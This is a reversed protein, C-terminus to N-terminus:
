NLRTCDLSIGEPTTAIGRIVVVSEGLTLTRGLYFLGGVPLLGSISSENSEVASRELAILGIEIADAQNAVFQSDIPDKRQIQGIEEISQDNTVRVSIQLQAPLSNAPTANAANFGQLDNAIEETSLLYPDTRNVVVNGAPDRDALWVTSNTIERVPILEEYELRQISDTITDLLFGQSNLATAFQTEVVQDQRGDPFYVFRRDLELASRTANVEVSRQPFLEQSGDLKGTPIGQVSYGAFPWDLDPSQTASTPPNQNFVQASLNLDKKRELFSGPTFPTLEVFIDSPDRRPNFAYLNHM